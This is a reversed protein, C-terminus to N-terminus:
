RDSLPEPEAAPRAAATHRAVRDRRPRADDAKPEPRARPGVLAASVTRLLTLLYLRVSRERIFYLDYELKRRHESADRAYPVNVQAWGTIGPPVAMRFAYWPIEDVWREVFEPREPRPGVLSMSGELVNLLQPLEDLRLRRLLRGFPLTRPDREAAFTPGDREADRAMTRLKLMTFPRGYQGLRRQRYLVPAGDSLLIGLVAVLLIPSALLLMLSALVVDAIRTVRNFLTWHVAGFGPQHLFIGPTLAELPLREELWAWIESAAVVPVGSFHLHALGDGMELAHEDGGALVVISANRSEIERAIADTPLTSVDVPRWPASPRQQLGSCFDEAADPDGVVLAVFRARRRLWWTFTWRVAVMQVAWLGATLGLVGRGVDWPPRLFSALVMAMGWFGIMVAVRVMVERRRYLVEPEYLEAATILVGGAALAWVLLGPMAQLETWKRELQLTDFRLAYALWGAAALGCVDLMAVISRLRARHPLYASM